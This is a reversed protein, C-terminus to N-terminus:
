KRELRVAAFQYDTLGDKMIRANLDPRLRTFEAISAHPMLLWAPPELKAMGQLDLCRLPMHVYFFVNTDLRLCYAPAPDALIAQEIANGAMRNEEFRQRLLPVVVISLVSQYIVLVCLVTTAARRMVVYRSTGLRDWAIGALVALSPAIPMAYRTNFGPWWVLIATCVGSYLIMPAVVSPINAGKDSRCWPWPVFPILLSAPLLELYLSGIDHISHTIYSSFPPWGNLRAYSVWSAEDGPRYVAAGWAVIAAAPMAMCLVWGPLDRWRREILLYAFVGLGFFAAPQPGKTMALAALLLGSGIWHLITLRGAAVGSWWVVLAAFSLATLLTDPEAVTLKQLLLPCFVFALAAFLSASLSAHRRTVAQVLLATGLVSLMTPLRASWENVGGTLTAFGAILWSLFSPKEHWRIGYVYPQLFDGRTLIDRAIEANTGEEYIFARLSLNPLVACAWLAVVLIPVAGPRRLFSEFGATWDALSRNFDAFISRATMTIGGTGLRAAADDPACLIM